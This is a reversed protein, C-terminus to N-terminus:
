IQYLKRNDIVYFNPKTQTCKKDFCFFWLRIWISWCLCLINNHINIIRSNAFIRRFFGFSLYQIIYEYFIIIGAFLNHMMLM